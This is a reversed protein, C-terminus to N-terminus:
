KKAGSYIVDSFDLVALLTCQVLEKRSEFSLCAKHQYYFGRRLKLMRILNEIYVTFSLKDDAWVGLYKYVKVQV